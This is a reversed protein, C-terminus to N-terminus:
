NNAQFIERKKEGILRDGIEGQNEELILFSVASTNRIEKNRLLAIENKQRKERKERPNLLMRCNDKIRTFIKMSDSLQWDVCGHKAKNAYGVTRLRSNLMPFLPRNQGM